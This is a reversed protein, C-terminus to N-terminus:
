INQKIGTILMEQKMEFLLKAHEKQNTNRPDKLIDLMRRSILIRMYHYLDLGNLNKELLESITNSIIWNISEKFREIIEDNINKYANADFERIGQIDNFDTPLDGFGIGYQITNSCKKLLDTSNCSFLIWNKSDLKQIENYSILCDRNYSENKSGSLKQFSGHGMFIITEFKKILEICENNSDDNPQIEYFTVSKLKRQLYQFPEILFSTTPDHPYIVLIKKM